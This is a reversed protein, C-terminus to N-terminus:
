VRKATNDRIKFASELEVPLGSPQGGGSRLSASMLALAKFLCCAPQTATFSQSCQNTTRIQLSVRPKETSKMLAERASVGANAVWLKRCHRACTGTATGSHSCDCGSLKLTVRSASVRVEIHVFCLVGYTLHPVTGRSSQLQLMPSLLRSFCNAVSLMPLWGRESPIISTVPVVACCRMRWTARGGLTKLQRLLAAQACDQPLASM